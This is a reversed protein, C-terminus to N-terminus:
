TGSPAEIVVGARILDAVDTVGWDALATGTHEGPRPPRRTLTGPTRSFRPAPAPQLVGEHVVFTGRALSLDLPPLIARGEHGIVLRECRLLVDDNM